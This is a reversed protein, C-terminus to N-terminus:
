PRRDPTEASSPRRALVLYWLTAPALLDGGVHVGMVAAVSPPRMMANIQRQVADDPVHELMGSRLMDRCAMRTRTADISASLNVAAIVALAFSLIAGVVLRRASSKVMGVLAPLTLCVALYFTWYTHMQNSREFYLAVVDKYEVVVGSGSGSVFM